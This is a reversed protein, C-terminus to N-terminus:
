LTKINLIGNEVKLGPLTSLPKQDAAAKLAIMIGQLRKRQDHSLEEDKQLDVLQGVICSIFGWLGRTAIEVIISKYATGMVFRHAKEAVPVIITFQLNQIIPPVNEWDFLEDWFAVPKQSNVHYNTDRFCYNEYIYRFISTFDGEGLCLGHAIKNRTQLEIRIWSDCDAHDVAKLWVGDDDTLQMKKDYIRLMRDSRPSGLYVTKQDGIRISYNVAGGASGKHMIPARTYGCNNLHEIVIDLFEPKYDILDFAFDCRTVHMQGRPLEPETRLYDDFTGPDAGMEIWKQRMSDLGTGSIDLRLRDFIFDFVSSNTLDVAFHNILSYSVAISVGDFSYTVQTDYGLARSFSREFFDDTEHEIHLFALVDNISCTQFVASYWDIKAFIGSNEM